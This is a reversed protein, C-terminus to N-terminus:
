GDRFRTIKLLFKIPPHKLLFRLNLMLHDTILEFVSRKQIRKQFFFKKNEKKLFHFVASFISVTFFSVLIALWCQKSFCFTFRFRQKSSSTYKSSLISMLNLIGFVDTHPLEDWWEGYYLEPYLIIDMDGYRMREGNCGHERGVFTLSSELKEAVSLLFGFFPGSIYSKNNGLYATEIFPQWDASLFRITQNLDNENKSLNWEEGCEFIHHYRPLTM